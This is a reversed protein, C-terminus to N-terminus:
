SQPLAISLKVISPETSARSLSALLQKAEKKTAWGTAERVLRGPKGDLPGIRGVSRGAGVVDHDRGGGTIPM